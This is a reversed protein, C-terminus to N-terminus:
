DKPVLDDFYGKADPHPEYGRYIMRGETKTPAGVLEILRRSFGTQKLTNVGADAAWREYVEHLRRASFRGSGDETKRLCAEMFSRVPDSDNRYSNVSDTISKPPDLGRRGYAVLGDVMWRLIGSAEATFARRFWEVPKRQDKDIKVPWPIVHIRRWIGDSNDWMQPRENFALLLMFNPKLDFFDRNLHRVKIVQETLKKLLGASFRAGKEPEAAMVLRVGPLAALDPTAQAGSREHDAALFSKIDLTSAYSGLVIDLAMMFTSKGNAGGGEFMAIVEEDNSGILCYGALRQLYSRIEPDPQVTEMFAEFTPAVSRIDYHAGLCKTDYRSPDPTLIQQPIIEGIRLPAPKAGDGSGGDGSPPAPCASGVLPPLQPDFILPGKPTAASWPDSDLQDPSKQIHPQVAKRMNDLRSSNGCSVAWREYRAMTERAEKALGADASELKAQLRSKFAAKESIRIASYVDQATLEAIRRGDDRSYHTGTWGLMGQSEVYICRDEFRRIWRLANGVDNREYDCLDLDVDTFGPDGDELNPEVAAADVLRVDDVSM